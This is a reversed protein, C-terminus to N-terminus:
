SDVVREIASKVRLRRVLGPHGVDVIDMSVFAEGIQRDSWRSCNVLM